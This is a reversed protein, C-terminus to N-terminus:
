GVQTSYRTDAGAAPTGCDPGTVWVWSAGGSDTFTVVLAAAGEFSAFDVLGVGLVGNGHESTVAALCDALAAPDGLRALPAFPSSSEQLVMDDGPAPQAYDSGTREAALVADAITARRYDTGSALVRPAAPEMLTSAEGGNEATEPEAARDPAGASTTFDKTLESNFLQNMGFGAFTVAAAAAAVPAAYRQWRRRDRRDRAAALSAPVAVVDPPPENGATRRASSDGVSPDVSPDVASTSLAPEGVSPGVSPEAASTSLAPEGASPGVSPEAALAANIRDAVGQPIPEVGNGWEALMARVLHSADVLEDHAARWGPRESILRHVAVQEPTGELAGGVYDALLDRDVEEFRDATV